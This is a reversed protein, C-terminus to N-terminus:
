ESIYKRLISMRGEFRGGRAVRQLLSAKPGQRRRGGPGEAFSHLGPEARRCRENLPRGGQAILPHRIDRRAGM